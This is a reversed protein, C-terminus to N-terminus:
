ISRWLTHSSSPGKREGNYSKVQFTLNKTQIRAPPEPPQRTRSSLPLRGAGLESHSRALVAPNAPWVGSARLRATRVEPNLMNPQGLTRPAGSALSLLSSLGRPCLLSCPVLAPTQIIDRAKRNPGPKIVVEWM